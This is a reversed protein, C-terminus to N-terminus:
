AIGLWTTSNIGIVYRNDGMRGNDNFEIATLRSAKGAVLTWTMLEQSNAMGDRIITQGVGAGQMTIAKDIELTSSWTATGAPIALTDGDACLDLAALVHARSVSEATVTAALCPMACCLVILLRLIM